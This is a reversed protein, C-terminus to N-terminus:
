FAGEAVCRRRRQRSGSGQFRDSFLLSLLILDANILTDSKCFPSFQFSETLPYLSFKWPFYLVSFSPVIFILLDLVCILRTLIARNNTRLHM